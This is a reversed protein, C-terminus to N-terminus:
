MDADAKKWPRPVLVTRIPQTRQTSRCECLSKLRHQPFDAPLHAVRGPLACATVSGATSFLRVTVGSPVIGTKLATELREVEALTQANAIAAQLACFPTQHGACCAMCGIQRQEERVQKMPLQM